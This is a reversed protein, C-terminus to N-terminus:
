FNFVVNVFGGTWIPADIPIVSKAGAGPISASFGGTLYINRTLARNYEIFIDDSLHHRTVGSIPNLVGDVEEM